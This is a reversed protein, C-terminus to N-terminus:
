LKIILSTEQLLCVFKSIFYLIQNNISLYSNDLTGGNPGRPYYSLAMIM